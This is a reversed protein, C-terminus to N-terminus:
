PTNREAVIGEHELMAVVLATCGVIRVGAHGVRGLVEVGSRGIFVVESLDLVVRYGSLILRDCERELLEAWEAVIRGQLFLTVERAAMVDHRIRLMPDETRQSM